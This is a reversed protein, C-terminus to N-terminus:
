APHGPDIDRVEQWTLDPPEAEAEGAIPALLHGVHDGTDIRELVRGVFWREIESLIPVGEPGEYWSCLTFKDIEDGTQGGFLDALEKNAESPFHVTIVDAKAAVTFTHNKKSLWVAFRPPHISVQTTFGVLCGARETGDTTTIITMPYDLTAVVEEFRDDADTV